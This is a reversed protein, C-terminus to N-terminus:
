IEGANIARQTINYPVPAPADDRSENQHERAFILPDADRIALLKDARFREPWLTEGTEGDYL